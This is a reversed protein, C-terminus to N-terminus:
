KKVPWSLYMNKWFLESGGSQPPQKARVLLFDLITSLRQNDPASKITEIYYNILEYLLDCSQGESLHQKKLEQEFSFPDRKHADPSFFTLLPNSSALGVKQELMTVMCRSIITPLLANLNDTLLIFQYGRPPEELVKLIRNAAASTLTQAKTLIFFCQENEDLAFATREFIIDVDDVTYGKEPCIWIVSHHQRAKIKRCTSCFCGAQEAALPCLKKQLLSEVFGLTQEPM